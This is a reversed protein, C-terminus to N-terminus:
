PLVVWRAANDGFLRGSGTNAGPSSWRNGPDTGIDQEFINVFGDGDSDRQGDSVTGGGTHSSRPDLGFVIEFLDDLGDEDSDSRTPNTDIGYEELLNLEDSDTDDEAQKFLNGFYLTEWADAVGDGDVDVFEDMGIDVRSIINSKLPHDWREEDEYDRYPFAVTTGADIAPSDQLLRTTGLQLHPDISIVGRDPDARSGIISFVPPRHLHTMPVSLDTGNNWVIANIIRIDGSAFVGAPQNWVINCNVLDARGPYAIMVGGGKQESENYSFLTNYLNVDSGTAYLGGGGLNRGSAICRNRQIVSNEIRLSGQRVYVGGGANYEAINDEIRCRSLYAAGDQISIGGGGVNARNSVIICQDISPSANSIAIAGGEGHLYNVYGNKITVGRLLTRHDVNSGFEFARGAGACDIVCAAPGGTSVIMLNKGTLTVDRNGPGSYVGNALTIISYPPAQDVAQQITQTGAPHVVFSSTSAPTVVVHRHYQYYAPVGSDDLTRLADYANLPDMSRGIEWGDPIGDRDTDARLPNTGENYEARTFLGDKDPDDMSGLGLGSAVRVEWSDPLDDGDRDVFEDCGIDIRDEPIEGDIDKVRNSGAGANIAPSDSTVRCSGRILRPNGQMNGPGPLAVDSLSDRCFLAGGKSMPVGNSWLIANAIEVWSEEAALGEPQFSMTIREVHATSHLAFLGDGGRDAANATFFSSALGFMSQEVFLAGGLAKTGRARNNIFSCAQIVLGTSHYVAVAGGNDYSENNIFEIHTLLPSGHRVALSGGSGLAYNERIVLNRLTPSAHEVLIAGGNNDSSGGELTLSEVVSARTEGSAFELLRNNAVAKLVVEGFSNIGRLTVKKGSFNIPSAIRYIGPVLLVLGGDPAACIEQEIRSAHNDLAAWPIVRTGPPLSLPDLPDSGALFEEGNLVGDADFDDLASVDALFRLSDSSSHDIIRYEWFDTLGDGDHDGMTLPNSRVDRPDTGNLWEEANSYGDGDPDGRSGMNQNETGDDLPDLGHHIEWEDSMGDHDSDPPISPDLARVPLNWSIGHNKNTVGGSRYRITLNTATSPIALNTEIRGSLPHRTMPGSTWVEQGPSSTVEAVFTKQLNDVDPMYSLRVLGRQVPLSPNWLLSVAETLNSTTPETGLLWELQNIMPMGPIGDREPNGRSDANLNAWWFREWDDPLGDQDTDAPSSIVKTGTMRTAASLTTGNQDTVETRYYITAGPPFEGLNLHWWDNNGKQGARVMPEDFWVFGNVSYRTTAYRGAGLPWSEVNLWFDTDARVSGDPPWASQNGVWAVALGRNVPARYNRGANNVWTNSSRGDVVKMFYEITSGGFFTRLNANWWDNNGRQGARNMPITNASRWGNTSYTVEVAVAAGLPWTELNVWVDDVPKITGNTPWHSVNGAWQLPKPGPFFLQYNLTGRNDWTRGGVNDYGYFFYEIPTDLPFPSAPTFSWISNLDVKGTRTMPFMRWAGSGIKIGVEAKLGTYDQNMLVTFTGPNRGDHRTYSGYVGIWTPFGFVIGGVGLGLTLAILWRVVQRPRSM